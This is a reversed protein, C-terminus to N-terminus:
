SHAKSYQLSRGYQCLLAEGMRGHFTGPLILSSTVESYCIGDIVLLPGVFPICAFPEWAILWCSVFAFTSAFLARLTPLIGRMVVQSGSLGQVCHSLLLELYDKGLGSTIRQRPSAERFVDWGRNLFPERVRSMRGAYTLEMHHPAHLSTVTRFYELTAVHWTSDSRTGADTTFSGVSIEM